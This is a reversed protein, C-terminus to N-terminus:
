TFNLIRFETLKSPLTYIHSQYIVLGNEEIHWVLRIDILSLEGIVAITPIKSATM